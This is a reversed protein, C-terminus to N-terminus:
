VVERWTNKRIITHRVTSGAVKPPEAKQKVSLGYEACFHLPILILPSLPEFHIYHNLTINYNYTGYKSHLGVFIAREVSLM